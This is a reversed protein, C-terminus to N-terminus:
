CVVEKKKSNRDPLVEGTPTEALSDVGSENLVYKSYKEIKM